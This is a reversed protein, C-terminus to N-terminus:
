PQNQVPEFGDLRSEARINEAHSTAETLSHFFTQTPWPRFYSVFTEPKGDEPLGIGANRRVDAVSVQFKLEAADRDEVSITREFRAGAMEKFLQIIVYPMHGGQDVFKKYAAAFVKRTVDEHALEAESMMGYPRQNDALKKADRYRFTPELLAKFESTFNGGKFGEGWVNIVDQALKDAQEICEELTRM